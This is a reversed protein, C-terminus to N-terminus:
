RWSKKFDIVPVITCRCGFHLPPLPANEDDIDFIKGHLKRCEECTRQDNASLWKYQKCGAKKYRELAERNLRISEKYAKVAKNHEEIAWKVKKKISNLGYRDAHVVMHIVATVIAENLDSFQKDEVYKELRKLIFDPLNVVVESM